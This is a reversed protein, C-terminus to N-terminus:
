LESRVAPRGRADDRHCDRLPLGRWRRRACAHPNPHPSLLDIIYIRAGLQMPIGRLQAPARTRDGGDTSVSNLTATMPQRDIEHFEQFYVMHTPLARTPDVPTVSGNSAVLVIVGPADVEAPDDNLGIRHSCLIVGEKCLYEGDVPLPPLATASSIPPASRSPASAPTNTATPTSRCGAFATALVIVAALTWLRGGQKM